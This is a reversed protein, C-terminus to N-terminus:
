GWPHAPKEDTNQNYLGKQETKINRVVRWGLSYHFANALLALIYHHYVANLNYLIFSM